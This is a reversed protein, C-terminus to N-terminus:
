SSPENDAAGNQFAEMWDTISLLLDHLFAAHGDPRIGGAVFRGVFITLAEWVVANDQDRCIEGIREHLEWAPKCEECLGDASDKPPFTHITATM